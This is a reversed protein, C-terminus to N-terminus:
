CTPFLRDIRDGQMREWFLCCLQSLSTHRRISPSCPISLVLSLLRPLGGNVIVRVKHAGPDMGGNAGGPHCEQRHRRLGKIYSEEQEFASVKRFFILFSRRVSASVHSALVVPVSQVPQQRVSFAETYPASLAGWWLCFQSSALVM